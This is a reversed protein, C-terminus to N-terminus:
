LNPEFEIIKKSKNCTVGKEKFTFCKDNYKFTKNKIKNLPPAYFVMCNRSNCAKRFMTALGVGLLVSIVICGANSHIIKHLRSM